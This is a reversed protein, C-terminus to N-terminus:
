DIKEKEYFNITEAIQTELDIPKGNLKRHYSLIVVGSMDDPHFIGKHVFWSVLEPMEQPYDIKEMPLKRKNSEIIKDRQDASWWLNWQNRLWRGMTMHAAGSVNEEPFNKFEEKDQLFKDLYEFSEELTKPVYNVEM